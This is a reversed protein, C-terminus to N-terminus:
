FKLDRAVTIGFVFKAGNEKLTKAATELTAGTTYVDDVLFIKKNKIKEIEKNNIAFTGELNKLREEIKLGVQPPTNKVKLLVENEIPIKFAQSLIKALEQSQNFGREKLRKKNLPIPILISNKPFSNSILEFHLIILLSLPLALEKLSNYKFQHIANKLVKQNFDTASFLGNLFKKQCRQCKGLKTLKKPKQCLCYLFPNIEILSFCDQCIFAGEKQCNICIKPFIINLIKQKLDKFKKNM